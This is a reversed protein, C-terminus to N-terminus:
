NELLSSITSDRSELIQQQAVNSVTVVQLAIVSAALVLLLAFTVTILYEFSVQARQEMSIM